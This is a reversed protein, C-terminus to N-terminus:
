LRLSAADFVPGDVCVRKMAPGGRELVLVTCGACGGLACAMYEELSLRCPTGHEKALAAVAALMPEPGCAFIEVESKEEPTLRSLWLEAPERIFGKFCGPYPQKSCLRAPIGLSELAAHTRRIRQDMGAVAIKSECTPFPFPRESAFIVFPATADDNALSQALFFIPPMGVGGGLLLPRKRENNVVFGNGIPGVVSLVDGERKEGLLCSGPGVKKYLIEIWGQEPLVSMISYPRRMKLGPDCQLHIFQGPKASNSCRPAHLRLVYQDQPYERQRLVEASEVFVAAEPTAEAPTM